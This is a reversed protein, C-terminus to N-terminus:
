PCNTEPACIPDIITHTQRMDSTPYNAIIIIASVMLVIALITIIISKNNM